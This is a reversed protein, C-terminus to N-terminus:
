VVLVMEGSSFSRGTSTNSFRNGSQLTSGTSTAPKKGPPATEEWAYAVNTSYGRKQLVKRLAHFCESGMRLAERFSAAGWPQIMFEQFDVNNDADGATSSTMM